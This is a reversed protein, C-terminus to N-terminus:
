SFDLTLSNEVYEPQSEQKEQYTSWKVSRLWRDVTLKRLPNGARTCGYTLKPYNCPMSGRCRDIILDMVANQLTTNNAFDAFVYLDVLDLVQVDMLKEDRDLVEHTYCWLVFRQFTKPKTEPLELKKELGELFTGSFAAQFFDSNTSLVGGPVLFAIKELGM